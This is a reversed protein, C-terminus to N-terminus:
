SSLHYILNLLNNITIKFDRYLSRVDYDAGHFIKNIAPDAFIEALPIINPITLPDIIYTAKPTGVQLLCIKETFHFMSDAELDVAESM